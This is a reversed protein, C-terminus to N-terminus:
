PVVLGDQRSRHRGVRGILAGSREAAEIIALALRDKISAGPNFFEAKVYITAHKPGLSNIRVTPTDGITDLISDYLRERGKTTRVQADLSM